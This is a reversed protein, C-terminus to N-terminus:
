RSLERLDAAVRDPAPGAFAEDAYKGRPVHVTTVRDRWREKVLSLIRRKDDVLVYHDAPFRRAVQELREEKHEYILVRGDVARALGSRGVKAAQYMLDGDSLIVPTGVRSIAAIAPLADPFLYERFPHGLVLAVLETFRPEEPRATHFRRLVEPFDVYGLEERTREYLAHFERSREAGLLETIERASDTNFRDNDLLTNDVDLLYVTIGM